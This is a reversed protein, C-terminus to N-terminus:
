PSPFKVMNRYKDKLQQGTFKRLSPFKQIITTWAHHYLKVGMLLDAEEEATWRRRWTSWVEPVNQIHFGSVPIVASGRMPTSQSLPTERMRSPEDDFTLDYMVSSNSARRPSVRRSNPHVDFQSGFEGIDRSSVRNPVSHLTWLFDRAASIGCARCNVTDPHPCPGFASASQNM